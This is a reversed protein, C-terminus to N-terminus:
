TDGNILLEKKKDEFGEREYQLDETKLGEAMVFPITKRGL